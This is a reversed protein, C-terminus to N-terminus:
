VGVEELVSCGLERQVKAIVSCIDPGVAIYNCQVIIKIGPKAEWGGYKGFEVLQAHACERGEIAQYRAEYDIGGLGIPERPTVIEDCWDESHIKADMIVIGYENDFIDSPRKYDTKFIRMANEKRSGCAMFLTYCM